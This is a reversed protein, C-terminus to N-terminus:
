RTDVILVNKKIYKSINKLADIFENNIAFEEKKENKWVYNDNYQEKFSNLIKNVKEDENENTIYIIDDYLEILLSIGQWLIIHESSLKNIDKLESYIDISITKVDEDGDKYTNIWEILENLSKSNAYERIDSIGNFLLLNNKKDILLYEEGSELFFGWVFFFVKGKVLFKCLYKGYKESNSQM